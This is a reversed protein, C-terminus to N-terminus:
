IWVQQVWQMQHAISTLVDSLVSQFTLDWEITQNKTGNKVIGVVSMDLNIFAIGSSKSVKGLLKSKLYSKPVFQIYKWIQTM